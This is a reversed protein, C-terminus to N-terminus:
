LNKLILRNDSSVRMFQRECFLIILILSPDAPILFRFIPQDLNIRTFVLHIRSSKLNELVSRVPMIAKSETM